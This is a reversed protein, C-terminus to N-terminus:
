ISKGEDGKQSESRLLSVAQGILARGSLPDKGMEQAAKQFNQAAEEYRKDKYQIVAARFRAVGALNDDYDNAFSLFREEAGESDISASFFDIHANLSKIM